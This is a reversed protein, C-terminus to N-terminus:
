GHEIKKLWSVPMIKLESMEEWSMLSASKLTNTQCQKNTSLHM